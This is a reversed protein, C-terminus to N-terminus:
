QDVEISRRPFDPLHPYPHPRNCSEASPLPSVHHGRAAASTFNLLRSAFVAHLHSTFILSQAFAIPERWILAEENSSLGGNEPESM